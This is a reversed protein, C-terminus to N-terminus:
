LGGTSYHARPYESNGPGTILPTRCEARYLSAANKTRANSGKTASIRPPDTPLIQHQVSQRELAKKACGIIISGACVTRYVCKHLALGELSLNGGGRKPDCLNARVAPSTLNENCM